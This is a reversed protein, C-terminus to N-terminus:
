ADLLSRILKRMEKKQAADPTFSPSECLVKIKKLAAIASAAIDQGRADDDSLPFLSRIKELLERKSEGQYARIIEEKKEFPGSRSALTYAAQRPMEDLRQKLLDSLTKHFQYYHLFNYPTQRNGYIALLWASFAGDRYQKLIQQAQFIREGHLIAAQNNIAKLESTLSFLNLLDKDIKQDGLKYSQLITEITEEEKKTLPTVQFVGSFSSLGGTSSLTALDNMKSSNEAPKLRKALLANMNM